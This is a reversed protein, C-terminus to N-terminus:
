GDSGWKGKEEDTLGLRQDVLLEEDEDLMELRRNLTDRMEELDKRFDKSGRKGAALGKKIIHQLTPDTIGFLDAIRYFDIVRYRCERFYHNYKRRPLPKYNSVPEPNTM